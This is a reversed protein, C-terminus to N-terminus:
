FPKAQKVFKEGAHGLEAAQYIRFRRWGGRLCSLDEFCRALKIPYDNLRTANSTAVSLGEAKAALARRRRNGDHERDPQVRDLKTEDGAEISRASACGRHRRWKM